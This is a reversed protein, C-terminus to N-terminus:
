WGETTAATTAHAATAACRPTLQAEQHGSLNYSFSVAPQTVSEGFILQPMLDANLYAISDEGM